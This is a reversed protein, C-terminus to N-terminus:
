VGAVANGSAAFGAEQGLNIQVLMKVYDGSFDNNELTRSVGVLRWTLTNTTAHTSIDLIPGATLTVAGACLHTVNEGVIAEYHAKTTLAADTDCDIEWTGASAPVVGVWSRRDEVTGWTTQNPLKDGFAMRTGDWYPSISMVIGFVAETTQAIIVGGTNVLNVPDGINIDLSTTTDDAKDDQGSAVSYMIPNPCSKGGNGAISWRFGYRQVNDM